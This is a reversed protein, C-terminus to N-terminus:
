TPRKTANPEPRHYRLPWRRRTLRRRLRALARVVLVRARQKSVELEAGLEELTREQGDELGFRLALARRDREELDELERRVAELLLQREDPPAEFPLDPREREEGDETVILLPVELPREAERRVFAGCRHRAMLGAIAHFPGRRPNFYREADVFALAAEQALDDPDGSRFRRSIWYALRLNAESPRVAVEAGDERQAQPADDGQAKM